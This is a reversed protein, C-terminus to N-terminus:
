LFRKMQETNNEETKLLDEALEKVAQDGGDYEHLRKTIKTIGMTNGEVMMEAMHSTSRDEMTKMSTMMASMTKAMKGSGEPKEGKQNIMKGAKDVVREYERLQTELARHFHEDETKEIIQLIGDRGMEANKYIEQLLDLDEM